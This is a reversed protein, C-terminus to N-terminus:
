KKRPELLRTGDKMIVASFKKSIGSNSDGTELIQRVHSIKEVLDNRAFDLDNKVADPAALKIAEQNVWATVRDQLGAGPKPEQENLLVKIGAIGREMAESTLSGNVRLLHVMNKMDASTVSMKYRDPGPLRMDSLDLMAQDLFGVVKKTEPDLKASNRSLAIVEDADAKGNHDLDIKPLVHEYSQAMKESSKISEAFVRNFGVTPTGGVPGLLTSVDERVKMEWVEM